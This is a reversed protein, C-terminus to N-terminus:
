SEVTVEITMPVDERTPYVYFYGEHACQEGFSDDYVVAKWTYYGPNTLRSAALEMVHTQGGAGQVGLTEESEVHTAMFRVLVPVIANTAPDRVLSIPTGFMMTITEGPLFVHGDEFGADM